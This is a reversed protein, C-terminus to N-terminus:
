EDDFNGSLADTAPWINSSEMSSKSDGLIIESNPKWNKEM